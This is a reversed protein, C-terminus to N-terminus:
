RPIGTDYSEGKDRQNFGLYTDRLADIMVDTSFERARSQGAARLACRRPRDSLLQGVALRLEDVNGPRVLLGEEPSRVIEPLGGATTAVVPLGAAMAELVAVGLAERRSPLVFVDAHWLHVALNARDVRGVRYVRSTLGSSDILAGLQTDHVDPGIITLTLDPHLATLTAVAKLLVDLGKRQWDTGVFLLRSGAHRDPLPDAPLEAPREFGETSVAKHVVRLRERPVAYSQAVVEATYESNCIALDASRLVRRENWYRWCASALRRAGHDRLTEYVRQPMYATEYDNVQVILPGQAGVLRGMSHTSNGHVICRPGLGSAVARATEQVLRYLELSGRGAGSAHLRPHKQAFEPAVVHFEIDSAEGFAQWLYNAYTAPGTDVDDFVTTVFLVPIRDPPSL